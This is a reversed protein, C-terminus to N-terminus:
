PIHRSKSFRILPLPCICRWASHQVCLFVCKCCVYMCVRKCVGALYAQHTSAAFSCSGSNHDQRGSHTRAVFRRIVLRQPVAQGYDPHHPRQQHKTSPTNTTSWSMHRNVRAAACISIGDLCAARCPTPPRINCPMGFPHNHFSLAAARFNFRFGM